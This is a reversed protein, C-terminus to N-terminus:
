LRWYVGDERWMFGHEIFARRITAYDDHHRKIIENVERESYRTGPTFRTCLWRLVVLQKNLAAPLETLREGIFYNRLVRSEEDDSGAVVPASREMEALARNIDQLMRAEFRYRTEGEPGAEASILPVEALRELHRMVSLPRLDLARSLEAATRPADMLLAILRLREADALVKLIRIIPTYDPTPTDSM